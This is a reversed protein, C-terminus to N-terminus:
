IIPKASLSEIEPKRGHRTKLKQIASSLRRIGEEIQKEDAYTFNLRLWDEHNNQPSFIKGEIFFVKEYIAERLLDATRLGGQLQCWLCIGGVPENWKLDDPCCKYLASIMLEKKRAYVKRMKQVHKDLLGQNIFESFVYQELTSTHLDILFKIPLLQKIVPKPAVVWGVRLGQFLIKSFTGIHIVSEYTDMAKLSSPPVQDFYLMSYPDEEIIPVQYKRALDLLKVRRELSLVSGSPNQFTPITYILKIKQRSLLNDLIDVRMGQQDVPIDIIKARAARFTKLSNMSTPSEVVVTEGPALLAQSVIYLAQVAGNTIFIENPDIPKDDHPIWDALAARLPYCGESPSLQLIIRPKEKVIKDLIEKLKRSPYHDPDPIGVGLSITDEPPGICIYDDYFSPPEIKSITTFFEAWNMPQHNFSFSEVDNKKKIVTGRGVHSEIYGEDILENYATVITSRNVGLLHAMERTPLLRKGDPLLDNLIMDKIQNKIQMYLPVRSKRNLYIESLPM